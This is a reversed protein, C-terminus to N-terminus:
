ASELHNMHVTFIALMSQTAIHLRCNKFEWQKPRSDHGTKESIKFWIDWFLGAGDPVLPHVGGDRNGCSSTRPLGVQWLQGANKRGRTTCSKRNEAGAQSCWKQGTRGQTGALEGRGQVRQTRWASTYPSSHSSSGRWFQSPCIWVSILVTWLPLLILQSVCPVPCQNRSTENGSCGSTLVDTRNLDGNGLKLNILFSGKFGETFDTLGWLKETYKSKLDTWCPIHPWCVALTSKVLLRITGKTKKNLMSEMLRDNHSVVM